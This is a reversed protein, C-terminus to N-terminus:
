RCMLAGDLAGGFGAATWCMDPRGMSQPGLCFGGQRNNVATFGSGGLHQASDPEM